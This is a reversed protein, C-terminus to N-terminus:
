HTLDFVFVYSSQNTPNVSIDTENECRWRHVDSSCTCCINMIERTNISNIQTQVSMVFTMPEFGMSAQSKKELKRQFRKLSCFAVYSSVYKDKYNKTRCNVHTFM